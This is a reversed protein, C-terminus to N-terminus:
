PEGASDLRIDFSIDPGRSPFALCLAPDTRWEWSGRPRDPTEDVLLRCSETFGLQSSSPLSRTSESARCRPTPPRAVNSLSRADGHKRHGGSGMWPLPGPIDQRMGSGQYSPPERILGFYKRSTFTFHLHTSALTDRRPEDSCGTMSPSPRSTPASPVGTM